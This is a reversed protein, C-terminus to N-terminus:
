RRYAPFFGEWGAEGALKEYTKEDFVTKGVFFPVIGDPSFSKKFAFVGDHPGHGGGIVFRSFGKEKGWEIIRVKLLDGPRMPYFEQLTGGLFSYMTERSLLVLESAVPKGDRIVHFFRCQQPMEDLLGRFFAEPLFYWSKAGRRQLTDYYIELFDRIRDGRADEEVRLGHGVATNVNKRVKHRFSKWLTDDSQRLDVVINDNNHETRGYYHQHASSFLSFRVFESVWGQERAYERFTAYFARLLAEEEGSDLKGKRPIVEPGGYGYPSAIDYKQPAERHSVPVPRLLFPYLVEGEDHRFRVACARGADGALLRVYAPHAFPERAPSGEWLALWARYDAVCDAYLMEWNMIVSLNFGTM